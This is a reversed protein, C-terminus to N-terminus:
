MIHQQREDCWRSFVPGVYGWMLAVGFIPIMRGDEPQVM